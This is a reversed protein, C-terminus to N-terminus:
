MAQWPPIALSPAFQFGFHTFTLWPLAPVPSYLKQQPPAVLSSCLGHLQAVENIELRPGRRLRFGTLPGSSHQIPPRPLHLMIKRVSFGVQSLFGTVIQLGSAQDHMRKGQCPGAGTDTWARSPSASFHQQRSCKPGYLCKTPPMETSSPIVCAETYLLQPM